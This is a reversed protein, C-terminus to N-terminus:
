ERFIADVWYNTAQFSNTPFTSTAGYAYVGNGGSAGDALGTLPSNVFASTFYPRTMSYRGSTTHYGVVYTTNASIAVPAPFNVEQWGSATEHVFPTSALLQGSGSWLSARHTGTNQSGKFFRVGYVQGATSSQFKLGVTVAQTDTSNQTAPTAAKNWLSDSPEFVVDVWYNTAQFSSSPFSNSAGYTYVGNGGSGADALATLPGNTFASSFYPRTVSYRGVTTHYSAVYTTNAAIQVPTAFNVQQWGSASEDVFTANALLDGSASWLSGVHTGTNQAGKYFRVGSITGKASSRFKVGVTVAQTDSHSAVAPTAQQNWLSDEVTQTVPPSFSPAFHILAENDFTDGGLYVATLERQGGPLITTTFQAPGDASHFGSGLVTSGDKFVVEGAPVVSGSVAQVTATLTVPQNRWSPNPSTTLTTTTPPDNPISIRTHPMGDTGATIISGGLSAIRGQVNAGWDVSVTSQALVNGRFTAWQGVAATSSFHWFINDPQAGRALAVNGVQAVALFTGKFIFVANPDGQADLTLTGNLSFSDTTSTYVGPGRTTGGLQAPISATATLGSIHTYAADFDAKAAAATSNGLHRNGNVVGPPFGSLSSGPSIGLDGTVTTFGTNSVSTTGMVAFPEADDLDIPQAARAGGATAALAGAALVAALAGALVARLRSRGGATSITRYARDPADRHQHSM